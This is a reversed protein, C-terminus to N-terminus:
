KINLSLPFILVFLVVIVVAAGGGGVCVVCLDLFSSFFFPIGGRGWHYM